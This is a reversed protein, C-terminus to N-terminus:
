HPGHEEAGLETLADDRVTLQDRHVPCLTEYEESSRGSDPTVLRRSGSMGVFRGCVDCRMHENRVLRDMM